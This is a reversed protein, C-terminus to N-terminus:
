GDVCTSNSAGPSAFVHQQCPHGSQVQDPVLRDPRIILSGEAELRARGIWGHSVDMFINGPSQRGDRMMERARGAAIDGGRSVGPKRGEMGDAPERLVGGCEM